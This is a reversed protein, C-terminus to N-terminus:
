FDAFDTGVRYFDREGKEILNQIPDINEMAMIFLKLPIDCLAFPGEYREYRYFARQYYNNKM